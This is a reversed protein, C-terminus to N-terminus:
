CCVPRKPNPVDVEIFILDESDEGFPGHARVRGDPGVVMSAGICKHGTWPGSQIPGVNSCGAIWVGFARCVPGYNDIWLQGYPTVSSDFDPPVAWACPSVILQAGMLALLRSIAQGPAFADACIMLGIRGLETDAVELRDGLAYLDHAIKLENIKRHHLIVEGTPAILVASNFLKDEHREIVGSCVYLGTAEAARALTQCTEGGPIHDAQGLASPDMWGFPLAEPLIVLRANRGAAKEIFETARQLNRAREGPAIHM